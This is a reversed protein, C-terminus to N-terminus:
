HIETTANNLVRDRDYSGAARKPPLRTLSDEDRAFDSLRGADIWVANIEDFVQVRLRMMRDQVIRARMGSFDLGDERLEYTMDNTTGGVACLHVSSLRAFLAAPPRPAAWWQADSDLM